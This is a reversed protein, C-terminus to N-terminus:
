SGNRSPFTHKRGVQLAVTEILTEGLTNFSYEVMPPVVAYVKRELLEM